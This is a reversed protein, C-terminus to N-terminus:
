ASPQSMEEARSADQEQLADGRPRPTRPATGGKRGAIVAEERTFRHATGQVHAAKGGLSAISRQKEPSMAAFGRRSNM